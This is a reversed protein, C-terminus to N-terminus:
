VKVRIDYQNTERSLPSSYIKYTPPSFYVTVYYLSHNVTNNDGVVQEKGGGSGSSSQADKDLAM